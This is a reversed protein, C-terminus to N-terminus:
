ERAQALLRYAANIDRTKDAAIRQFEPDLHAFKDPHYQQLMRRWAAKVASFDAGPELGLLALACLGGAAIRARRAAIGARRNSMSNRGM